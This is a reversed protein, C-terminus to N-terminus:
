DGRSQMRTIEKDDIIVQKRGMKSSQKRVADKMDQGLPEDDDVFQSLDDAELKCFNKKSRMSKFVGTFAQLLGAIAMSVPHLYSHGVLKLSGTLLIMRMMYIFIEVRIFRTERRLIVLKRVYVFCLHKRTITMDPECTSRLKEVLREDEKSKLYLSYTFIILELITKALSFNDKLWGWKIQYGTMQSSFPVFKDLFGIKSFWVINDSFYYIFSCLASVTKM